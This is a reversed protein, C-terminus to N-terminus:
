PSALGPWGTWAYRATLWALAPLLVVAAALRPPSGRLAALGAGPSALLLALEAMLLPELPLRFRSLGYLASFAALHYALTGVCLLGWPGGARSVVALAGGLVVVVTTAATAIVTLEKLEWPLGPWYGWRVHRTLFTNPNLAQALREPVRAVFADPHERIWAVARRVECRDHVVPGGARPCDSRGRALTRAYLDGTLQGNLYDFTVPPFDDNGLGIVHGLTADSVVAGGWRASASVSYPAVLAALTGVMVLAHRGRRALGERWAGRGSRLVEPAVFALMGLPFLWTAVGRLLVLLALLAGPLVARRATGDRAWLTALIWATLLLTSLTETWMTGVYFVFTPHIAFGGVLWRAASRGHTPGGLRTGLAALVGLQIPTLAWQVWKVSEFSGLVEACAALLYPYLPAPLWGRPALGLGDGDLIPRAAIKFICEDRTCDSGDWGWVLMPAARLALAIAVAIWWAPDRLFPM